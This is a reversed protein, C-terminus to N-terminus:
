KFPHLYKIGESTITNGKAGIYTQILGQSEMNKLLTKIRAETLQINDIQALTALKRRGLTQHEVLKELIWLVNVDISSPPTGKSLSSESFLYPPLEDIDILQNKKRIHVSYEIVNMLERINGPWEYDVLYQLVISSFFHHSAIEDDEMFLKLYWDMLLIIDERRQNLPPVYIPLVSLRYFLDQRFEGANVLKKLDKNSATIIRVDIPILQSSGIRRVQKEQLVRLLRSQFELPADGIEDLFITGGHAEEFLGAKGGKKAGTFAGSEYGFLESELLSSSLAAFNVPIFPKDKMDSFNHISQAFLEKGTGNEGQILIPSNSLAFKKALNISKNMRENKSLIDSFHYRAYHSKSRIKRRMEHELKQVEALDELTILHGVTVGQRKVPTKIVAVNKENIKIMDQDFDEADWRKLNPLVDNISKGIINKKKIKLLSEFVRNVEKIEGSNNLYIISDVSNDVITKFMNLHEISLNTATNYRKLLAIIDRIFQSSVISGKNEVLCFIKLIEYITTVDMKRIGIDIIDKVCKPVLSTEGPTVALSLEKYSEIGPYYPHYTVHDLGLNKLQEITELCTEKMDNVLLVDSGNHLSLLSNLHHPNVSRSSVIYSSLDQLKSLTISKIIPCTFVVLSSEFNDPLGDELCFLEVKIEDGILNDLQKFIVEGVNQTTTVIAVKSLLKKSAVVNKEHRYDIQESSFINDANNIFQNKWSYLQRSVIGYKELIENEQYRNQLYELVINLKLESSFKKMNKINKMNITYHM